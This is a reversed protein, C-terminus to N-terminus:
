ESNYGNCGCKKNAVLLPQFRAGLRESGNVPLDLVTIVALRLSSLTLNPGLARLFRFRMRRASFASVEMSTSGTGRELRRNGISTSSCSLSSTGKEAASATVALELALLDADLEVWM